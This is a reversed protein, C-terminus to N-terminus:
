SLPCCSNTCCFCSTSLQVFSVPTDLFRDCPLEVATLMIYPAALSLDLLPYMYTPHISPLRTRRVFRPVHIVGCALYFVRKFLSVLQNQRCHAGVVPPPHLRRPIRRELVVTKSTHGGQKPSFRSLFEAWPTDMQTNYPTWDLLLAQAVRGILNAFPPLILSLCSM